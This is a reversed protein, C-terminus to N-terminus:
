NALFLNYLNECNDHIATQSDAGAVIGFYKVYLDNPNQVTESEKENTRGLVVYRNSTTTPKSYVSGGRVYGLASGAEAFQLAGVFYNTGSIGTNSDNAWSSVYVNPRADMLIGKNSGSTNNEELSSILRASGSETGKMVFYATFPTDKAGLDVYAFSGSAKAPIYIANETTDKIISNPNRLIAPSSGTGWTQSGSVYNDVLSECLIGFGTYPLYVSWDGGYIYDGRIFGSNSKVITAFGVAKKQETTLADWEAQTFTPISGGAVNVTVPAYGIAGSPPNYTGNQTVSLPEITGAGPVAVHVANFGDVGAGPTYDGNATISLSELVPTDTWESASKAVIKVGDIALIKGNNEPTVVDHIANLAAEIQEGTLDSDFYTNPM